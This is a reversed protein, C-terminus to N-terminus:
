PKPRLPIKTLKIIGLINIFIVVVEVNRWRNWCIIRWINTKKYAKWRYVINNHKLCFPVTLYFYVNIKSSIDETTNKRLCREFHFYTFFYLTLPMNIIDRVFIKLFVKIKHIFAAHVLPIGKFIYKGADIVFFVRFILLELCKKRM